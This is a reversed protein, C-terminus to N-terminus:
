PAGKLMETLAAHAAAADLVPVAFDFRQLVGDARLDFGDADIGVMEVVNVQQQRVQACWARLADGDAQNFDALLAQEQGALPSSPLLFDAPAVWHIDGFGGIYRIKEPTIRYFFFDPLALIETSSPFYRLYRRKLAETDGQLRTAQGIVTVRGHDQWDLAREHALLSVRPDADLNRTHEALTSLLLIPCATADLLYGAISGFPYGGLKKSLTSLVGFQEHRLLHRAARATPKM